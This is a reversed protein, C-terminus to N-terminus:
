DVGRWDRGALGSVRLEIRAYEADSIRVLLTVRGREPDARASRDPARPEWPRRWGGEGPEPLRVAGGAGVARLALGDEGGVLLWARGGPLAEGGTAEVALGPSWWLVGLTVTPGARSPLDGAPPALGLALTRGRVYVHHATAGAPDYDPSEVGFGASLALGKPLLADGALAALVPALADRAPTPHKACRFGSV